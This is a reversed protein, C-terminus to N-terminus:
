LIFVVILLYPAKNYNVEKSIVDIIFSFFVTHVITFHSSILHTPISNIM